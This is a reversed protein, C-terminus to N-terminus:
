TAFNASAYTESAYPYNWPPELGRTLLQHKAVTTSTLLKLKLAAFCCGQSPLSGINDNAAQPLIQFINKVRLRSVEVELLVKLKM